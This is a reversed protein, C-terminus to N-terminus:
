RAAPRVVCGLRLEACQERGDVRWWLQGPAPLMETILVEAPDHRALEEVAFPDCFDVYCPRPDAPHHVFVHRPLSRERRLRHLALWRDFADAGREQPLHVRWRARQYILDDILIRPTHAGLDIEPPRSRGPRARAVVPGAEPAPELAPDPAAASEPAPVTDPATDPASDPASDPAPGPEPLGDRLTHPASHLRAHLGEYLPRCDDRVGCLLWTAEDLHPGVAMLEPGPLRPAPGDPALDWLRATARAVDQATLRVVDQGARGLAEAALRALAATLASTRAPDGALLTALHWLPLVATLAERLGALAGGGITLRESYPSSREERFVEHRQPGRVGGSGPRGGWGHPHPRGAVGSRRGPALAEGAGLPGDVDPGPREGSAVRDGSRPRDASDPRDVPGLAALRAAEHHQARQPWSTSAYRARLEEARSADGLHRTLWDGVEVIVREPGPEGVRLAAGGSGPAFRAYLVPGGGGGGVTLRRLQRHATASLLRSRRATGDGPRRALPHRVIAQYFAPDALFAAQRVSEDDYAEAVKRRTVLRATAYASRAAARAAGAVVVASQWRRAWEGLGLSEVLGLEEGTLPMGARVSKICRRAQARREPNLRLVSGRMPAALREFCQREAALRREAALLRESLRRLGPHGLGDLLSVPLGTTRLLFWPRLEM